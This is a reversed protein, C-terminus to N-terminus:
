ERNLVRPSTFSKVRLRSLAELSGPLDVGCPDSRKGNRTSALAVSENSKSFDRGLPEVKGIQTTKYIFTSAHMYFLERTPEILLAKAEPPGLVSKISLYVIETISFHSLSSPTISSAGLSTSWLFKILM